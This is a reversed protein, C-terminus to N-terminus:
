RLLTVPLCRQKTQLRLLVVACRETLRVSACRHHTAIVDARLAPPSHRAHGHTKARERVLLSVHCKESPLLSSSFQLFHVRKINEPRTVVLKIYIQTRADPRDSSTPHVSAFLSLIRASRALSCVCRCPFRVRVRVARGHRQTLTAPM